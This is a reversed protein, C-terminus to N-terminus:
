PQGLHLGHHLPPVPAYRKPLLQRQLTALIDGVGHFVLIELKVVLLHIRVPAKNILSLLSNTQLYM